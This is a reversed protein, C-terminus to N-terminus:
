KQNWYQGLKFDLDRPIFLGTGSEPAVTLEGFRVQGDELEYLDVRLFDHNDALIEAIQIMNELNEPPEIVNALPYVLRFSQPNWDTDYFRRKHNNFRDSDVHIFLVSGDFAFFKYDTPPRGNKDRLDEEILIKPSIEAYWYEGKNQGYTTDLWNECRVKIEDVDVDDGSDVFLIEGSM